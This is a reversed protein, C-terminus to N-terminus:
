ERPMDSPVRRSSRSLRLPANGASEIADERWWGGDRPGGEIRVEESSPARQSRSCFSRALRRDPDPDPDPERPGPLLEDWERDDPLRPALKDPSSLPLSSSALM